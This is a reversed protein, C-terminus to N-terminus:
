IAMADGFNRMLVISGAFVGLARLLKLNNDWKEQSQYQSRLFAKAKEVSIGYNAM